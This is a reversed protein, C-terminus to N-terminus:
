SKSPREGLSRMLIRASVILPDWVPSLTPAYGLDTFFLDWVTAKTTLLSAVVNIRWFVSEDGLAQAGLIRGTERDAVLKLHVQVRGPMYHPKSNGVVVAEVPDFGAEHAQSVNLGTRAVVVDFVKFASTGASGPFRADRGAIVTGAVYGMKNAIQAFPRWVRKGTVIDTHEAVDGVAFVDAISTHLQDDTWIAGTEGIRVGMKKGLEVNPEIGIGVVFLDGEVDGKDTVIKRAKGEHGVFERVPAGTLVEIGNAKLIAHLKESLDPDLIYPAVRDLAEVVTVKLGLRALNEAIELGVYGSGIVVAKEVGPRLAYRRIEDGTELHKIYFVNEYSNIEPWLKPAKSRAGTALVLYDWEITTERGTRRDIYTLTKASPDAEVVESEFAINIGRKKIFEEPKYHLLDDVRKVICGALYPIGCLAFSVWRTREIVTVKADPKLRKVRSATSMGAAGGGVVVVHM